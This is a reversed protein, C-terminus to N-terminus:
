VSPQKGAARFVYARISGVDSEGCHYWAKIHAVTNIESLCQQFSKKFLTLIVFVIKANIRSILSM